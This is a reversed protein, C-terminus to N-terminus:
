RSSIRNETVCPFSVTKEHLVSADAIDVLVGFDEAEETRKMKWDPEDFTLAVAHNQSLEWWRWM